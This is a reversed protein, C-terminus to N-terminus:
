ASAADLVSVSSHGRRRDRSPLKQQGSYRKLNQPGLNGGRLRRAGAIVADASGSKGNLAAPLVFIVADASRADDSGDLTKSADDDVVDVYRETCRCRDFDVASANARARHLDTMDGPHQQRALKGGADRDGAFDLAADVPYVLGAQGYQPLRDVRRTNRRLAQALALLNGHEADAFRVTRDNGPADLGAGNGFAGMNSADGDLAAIADQDAAKRKSARMSVQGALLREHTELGDGISQDDRANLRFGKDRAQFAADDVDLGEPRGILVPRARSGSPGRREARHRWRRITM